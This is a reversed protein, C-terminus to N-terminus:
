QDAIVKVIQSYGKAYNKPYIQITQGPDLAKVTHVFTVGGVLVGELQTKYYIQLQNYTEDTRNSIELAGISIERITIPWNKWGCNNITQWGYCSTFNKYGYLAREKELVLVRAGPPIMDAEFVFEMIDRKLVVKTQEVGADGSNYLMLAMVNVVEQNSGDELFPGEYSIVNEAILNTGEVKCPLTINVPTLSEVRQALLGHGETPLQEQFVPVTERYSALYARIGFVYGFIILFVTGFSLFCLLVKRMNAHM